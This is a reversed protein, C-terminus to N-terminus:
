SAELLAELGAVAAHVMNSVVVFVVFFAPNSPKFISNSSSQWCVLTPISEGSPAASRSFIKARTSFISFCFGVLSGRGEPSTSPSHVSRHVVEMPSNPRLRGRPNLTSKSRGIRWRMSVALMCATLTSGTVVKEERKPPILYWFVTSISRSGTVLLRTSAIRFLNEKARKSGPARLGPRREKGAGTLALPNMSVVYTSLARVTPGVPFSRMELPLSPFTNM